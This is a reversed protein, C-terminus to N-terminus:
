YELEYERLLAGPDELEFRKFRTRSHTFCYLESFM